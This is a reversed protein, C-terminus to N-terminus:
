GSKANSRGTQTEDNIRKINSAWLKKVHRAAGIICFCLLVNITFIIILPNMQSYDIAIQKVM